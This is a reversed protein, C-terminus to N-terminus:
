CEDRHLGATPTVRGGASGELARLQALVDGHLVGQGMNPAPLASAGAVPPHPLIHKIQSATSDNM